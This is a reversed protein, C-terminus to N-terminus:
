KWKISCGMSPIQEKPGTSNNAIYVMANFLDRTSNNTKIAKDQDFRGRYQLVDEKNFGFFDPTCVAQYAYAVEQTKDIVYPFHFKYTDAFIQMNDYSDEKYTNTDNPMIAISNIGYERLENTDKVIKSMIAKVYPCHNCIFMVLTGNKGKIDSFSYYKGDTGLLNFEKAKFNSNRLPTETAM